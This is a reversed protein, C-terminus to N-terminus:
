FPIRHGHEDSDGCRKILYSGAPAHFQRLIPLALSLLREASPGYMYITCTGGGWEDGDLEGASSNQISDSLQHQLAIIRDREEKAGMEGSSLRITAILAQEVKASGRSFTAIIPDGHELRALIRRLALTGVGTGLALIVIWGNMPSLRAALYITRLSASSASQHYIAM